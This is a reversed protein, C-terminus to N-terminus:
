TVPDMRTLRYSRHGRILWFTFGGQGRKTHTPEAGYFRRITQPYTVIAISVVPRKLTGIGILHANTLDIGRTKIHGGKSYVTQIAKFMRRCNLCEPSVLSRLNSLDGNNLAGNTATVWAKVFAIPTHPKPPTTASQTPSSRTSPDSVSPSQEASPDGSCASGTLLMAAVLVVSPAPRLLRV